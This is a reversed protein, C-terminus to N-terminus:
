NVSGFTFSYISFDKSNSSLKLEKTQFSELEVLSFMRSRDVLLFSDGEESFQIDSGAESVELPEGELTVIVKYTEIGAGLVM